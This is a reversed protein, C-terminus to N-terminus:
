RATPDFNRPGSKKVLMQCYVGEETQVGASGGRGNRIASSLRRDYAFNIPLGTKFRNCGRGMPKEIAGEQVITRFLQISDTSHTTTPAPTTPNAIALAKARAPRSTTMMSRSFSNPAPVLERLLSTM